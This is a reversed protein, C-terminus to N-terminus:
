EIQGEDTIMIRRFMRWMDVRGIKRSASTVVIAAPTPCGTEEIAKEVMEAEKKKLMRKIELNNKHDKEDM